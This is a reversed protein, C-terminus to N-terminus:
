HHSLQVRNFTIAYKLAMEFKGAAYYTGAIESALFLTM